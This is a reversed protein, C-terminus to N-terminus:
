RHPPSLNALAHVTWAVALAVLAGMVLVSRGLLSAAIPETGFDGHFQAYTGSVLLRRGVFPLAALALALPVGTAVLFPGLLRKRAPRAVALFCAMVCAASLMALALDIASSHQAALYFYSWDRHFFVFYGVMPLWVLSAFAAVVAFAPTLVVPGETRALEPGAIWAFAGGLSLGIFHAFVIPV